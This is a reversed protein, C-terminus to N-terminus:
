TRVYHVKFFQLSSKEWQKAFAFYRHLAERRHFEVTHFCMRGRADLEPACVAHLMEHYVIFEVFPLPVNPYDLLRNIRILPLTRDYSGYTIHRFYRYHRPEAWRIPTKLAGEFYTANVGDFLIQLDVHEGKPNSLQPDPNPPEIRTFYLHVMQRIMARSKKDPRVAFQVLAELVPTSAFLFLRHVMLVIQGQSDRYASAYTSRHEHVELRLPYPCISQLRKYLEAPTSIAFNTEFNLNSTKEVSEPRECVLISANQENSDSTYIRPNLSSYIKAVPESTM